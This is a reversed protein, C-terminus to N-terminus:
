LELTVDSVAISVPVQFRAKLGEPRYDREVKLNPMSALLLSGFGSRQPASLGTLGTESWDVTLVDSELQWSIELRGAADGLCGHKLANTMMEHIVLGADKTSKLSLRFDGGSLSVRGACEAPLARIEEDFLRRFSLGEWDNQELRRYNRNMAELRNCFQAVYDDITDYSGASLRATTMVVTMLNRVRHHLEKSIVENQRRLEEQATVDEAVQILHTIQGGPATHPMCAFRWYKTTVKGTDPDALQFPQAQTEVREGALARHFMDSVEAVREPTDPFADFVHRGLLEGESRGVMDLYRHNVFVFRLDRDLMMVSAPLSKLASDFDLPADSVAAQM